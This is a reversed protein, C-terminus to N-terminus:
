ADLSDQKEVAYREKDSTALLYGPHFFNYTFIALTVMGGDLVDVTM